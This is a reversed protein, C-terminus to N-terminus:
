DEDELELDAFSYPPLPGIYRIALVGSLIRGLEHVTADLEPRRERPVLLHANLAVRDSGPPDVRVETAFPVLRDLLAQEDGARREDIAAAVLEGLEIRQERTELESQGAIAAARRGIEENNAMAAALLSDEAYYARVTMQVHGGLRSLLAQFEDEHEGLLRERVQDEGDIVVGFRMPVTTAADSALALVRRHAEIDELRGPVHDSALPSVLAALEGAAITRAPGDIGPAGPWEAADAAPMVGHIYLSQSV